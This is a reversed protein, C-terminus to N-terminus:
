GSNQLKHIEKKHQRVIKDESFRIFHLLYYDPLFYETVLNILYFEKIEYITTIDAKDNSM